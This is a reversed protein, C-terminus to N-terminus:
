VIVVEMFRKMCVLLVLMRAEVDSHFASDCGLVLDAAHVIQMSMLSLRCLTHNYALVATQVITLCLV